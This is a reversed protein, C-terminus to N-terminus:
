YIFKNNEIKKINKMIIYDFEISFSCTKNIKNQVEEMTNQNLIRLKFVM